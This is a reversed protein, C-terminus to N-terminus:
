PYQQQISTLSYQILVQMHVIDFARSVICGGKTDGRQVQQIKTMSSSIYKMKPLYKRFDRQKRDVGEEAKKMATILNEEGKETCVMISDLIKKPPSQRLLEEMQNSSVKQVFTQAVDHSSTTTKHCSLLCLFFYIMRRKLFM